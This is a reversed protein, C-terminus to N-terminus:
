VRYVRFDAPGYVVCALKLSSDPHICAHMSIGPILTQQVRIGLGQFGDIDFPDIWM